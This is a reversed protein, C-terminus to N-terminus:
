GTSPQNIKPASSHKDNCKNIASVASLVGIIVICGCGREPFSM